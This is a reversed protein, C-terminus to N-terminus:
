SIKMFTTTHLSIVEACATDSADMSQVWSQCSIRAETEMLRATRAYARRVRCLMNLLGSVLVRDDFDIMMRGLETEDTTPVGSMGELMEDWTDTIGYAVEREPDRRIENYLTSVFGYDVRFGRTPIDTSASSSESVEFGLGLTICLRKRPPLTVEPVDVRHSMSPLLLPLFSTPLLIPLLPPTGSPPTSLPLPNFTSPSEARLWPSLPSPPPTPIALLRVVEIESPLSIPTQSQVSMRAMVCHVHSPVSDTTAPHEEDEEEDKDKDEEEEDAEDESSEEEEEEEDDDEKDTPYDAPDEEPDKVDEEPDFDDEPPMFAPYVPELVFEPVYAPSPPHEPGPVYDLSPLAEEHDFDTIYGPSSATPSVTTPLPQEKAPFVVDEPPMFKLYVPKSVFEPLPPHEPGSMYDPSPPAMTDRAGRAKIVELMARSSTRVRLMGIDSM